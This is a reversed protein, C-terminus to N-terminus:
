HHFEQLAKYQSAAYLVSVEALLEEVEKLQEPPYTKEIRKLISIVLNAQEELEADTVVLDEMIKKFTPQEAVVEDLRIMGNEDFFM